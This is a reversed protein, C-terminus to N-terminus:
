SADGDHRGWDIFLARDRAGVEFRVMGSGRRNVVLYFAPRPVNLNWGTTVGTYIGRRTLTRTFFEHM